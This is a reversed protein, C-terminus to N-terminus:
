RKITGNIYGGPKIMNRIEWAKYNKLTESLYINRGVKLGEPLLEVRSFSLDLYGGVELGEPLSTIDSYSLFLNGGVKLGKPLSTISSSRLDLHGRVNLDEEALPINNILKWKVPARHEGKEELFDFIRKLQEKEM